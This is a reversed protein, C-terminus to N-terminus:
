NIQHDLNTNSYYQSVLARFPDEPFFIDLVKIPLAAKAFHPTSEPPFSRYVDYWVPRDHVNIAGSKILGNVRSM